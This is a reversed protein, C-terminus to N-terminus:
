ITHRTDAQNNDSGAILKGEFSSFAKALRQMQDQADSAYHFLAGDAANGSEDEAGHITKLLSKEAQYIDKLENLFLEKLDPAQVGHRKKVNFTRSSSKGEFKMFTRSRHKIIMQFINHWLLYDKAFIV